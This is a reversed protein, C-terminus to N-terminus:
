KHKSVRASRSITIYGLGIEFECPGVQKQKRLAPTVLTHGNQEKLCWRESAQLKGLLSSQSAPLGPWEGWHQSIPPHRRQAERACPSSPKFKSELVRGLTM